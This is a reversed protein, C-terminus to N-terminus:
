EPQLASAELDQCTEIGIGLGAATMGEIKVRAAGTVHHRLIQSIGLDGRLAHAGPQAEPPRVVRNVDHDPARRALREGADPPGLQPLDGPIRLCEQFIRPCAQVFTPHGPDALQLRKRDQDLVNRIDEVGSTAVDSLLDGEVELLETEDAAIREQVGDVVTDRLSTSRM